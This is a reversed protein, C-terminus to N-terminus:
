RTILLNRLILQDSQRLRVTYLGNAVAPLSVGRNLDPSNQDWEELYVRQGIADLVELQLHGTKLNTASLQFSGQSPNPFLSLSGNQSGISQVGLVIDYQISYANCGHIDTVQVYYVGSQTMVYASDTAGPIAAGNLYWQYSLAHSCYLTDNIYTVTPRIPAYVNIYGVVNRTSVGNSNGASLTVAYSGPNYYCVPAPNASISVSPIGGQFTWQYITANVSNNTFTVCEGICISTDSAIFDARPFNALCAAAPCSPDPQYKWIDAHFGTYNVYGGLLWFYGQQDAYPLPGYRNGPYNTPNFVGLTGYVPDSNPTQNGSIYTWKLTTVNFFWFDGYGQSPGLDNGGGYVFLNGCSDRWCSRNEFRAGPTNASDEVCATGYVQGAGPVNSGAMWTWENVSPDYKWVDDYIGQSSYAGFMWFNDNIDKWHAHVMRNSPVNTTSSVGKTGWNGLGGMTNPGAMWTWENTNIDYKWTDNYGDGGFLWLNGANDVWAANTEIRQGPDNTPSPVGLTGWNAPAMGTQSGKMWAWLNTNIDYKWLDGMNGANGVGGYLWLNGALDVWTASTRGRGGPTNGPAAVGQTGYVPAGAGGAGNGSMWTWLGTAPDFMWLNDNWGFSTGGGYQWFKGNRDTWESGEYIGQPWNTPSPVGQVGFSGAYNGLTDGGMWAWQGAQANSTSISIGTLLIVMWGAILLQKRM